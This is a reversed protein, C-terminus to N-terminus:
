LIGPIKESPNRMPDGEKIQFAEFFEPSNMLPGLVRYAYPPYGGNELKRIIEEETYKTKWLQAFAIFFRQAPTFGEKIEGSNFEKTKAYAQYAIIIGGYDAINEQMTRNSDVCYGEKPCFNSYTEGLISLKNEFKQRDSENTLNEIIHHFAHTFEHAIIMGIGGYNMADEAAEDFFPSQMLGATIIIKSPQAYADVMNATMQWEENDVLTNLKNMERRHSFRNAERLNQIYSQPYFDLSSYDNWKSPFGVDVKIEDFKNIIEKKSEESLWHLHSVREKFTILINEIMGKVKAQAKESFYREVFAKGLLEGFKLNFPDGTIEELALENLSKLKSKGSLVKGYFNFHQDIFSESLHSSYYDISKWMLYNKWSLLSENEFLDAIKQFYSPQLVVLKDFSPSEVRRLYAEFDIKGFLKGADQRSIQQNTTESTYAQAIKMEFDVVSAAIKDSEEKSHNLLQFIKSIYEEYKELIDRKDKSLYYESNNLGIGHQGLFTMNIEFKERDPGVSFFFLSKIGDRHQDAIIKIIESKSKISQIKELDTEIPSAGLKNRTEMDIFSAYYSGLIKADSGKAADTEKFEQLIGILQEKNRIAIENLTGWMSESDPVPNNALWNGNSFQYFDDQPRIEKNLYSQNFTKLDKTPFESHVNSAITTLFVAISSALKYYNFNM